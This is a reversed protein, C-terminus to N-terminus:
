KPRDPTAALIGGHQIDIKNPDIELRQYLEIIENAEAVADSNAADTANQAAAALNTARNGSDAMQMWAETLRKREAIQDQLDNLTAVAGANLFHDRFDPAPLKKTIDTSIVALAGRDNDAAQYIAVADSIAAGQDVGANIDAAVAAIRRDYAVLQKHFDELKQLDTRGDRPQCASLLSLLFVSAKGIRM